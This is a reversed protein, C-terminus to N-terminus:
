AILKMDEIKVWGSTRTKPYFVRALEGDTNLLRLVIGLAGKKGNHIYESQIISGVKIM